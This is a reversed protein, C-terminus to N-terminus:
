SDTISGPSPPVNTGIDKIVEEYVIINKQSAPVNTGIDRRITEKSVGLMRATARQSAQLESTSSEKRTIGINNLTQPIVKNEGPVLDRFLAGDKQTAIEGAEQKQQLLKGM